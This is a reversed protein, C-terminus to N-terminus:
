TASPASACRSRSRSRARWGSSSSASARLADRRAQVGRARARLLDVAARAGRPRRVALRRAGDLELDPLRARARRQPHTGNYLNWLEPGSRARTGSASTTASASSGSRRAPASRTAAPAASRRTSATSRSRTSCRRRRCSTARPARAPRRSSAARTSRSRCRPSSAADRRARRRAPRPVRDGRPLQPGHRRAHGPLPVQRAPVGERRAAAARDLGQRRLLAAGPRELEAAVERM